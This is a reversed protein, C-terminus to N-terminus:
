VRGVIMRRSSMRSLKSSVASVNAAFMRMFGGNSRQDYLDILDTPDV